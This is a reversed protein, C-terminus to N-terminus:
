IYIDMLKYINILAEELLPTKVWLRKVKGASTENPFNPTFTLRQLHITKFLDNNSKM